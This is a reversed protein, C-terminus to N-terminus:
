ASSPMRSQRKDRPSPSTYLLCGGAGDRFPHTTLPRVVLALLMHTRGRGAEQRQEPSQAGPKDYAFPEHAKALVVVGVCHVLNQTLQLRDLLFGEKGCVVCLHPPGSVTHLRVRTATVNKWYVCVLTNSIAQRVWRGASCVQQGRQETLCAIDFVRGPM